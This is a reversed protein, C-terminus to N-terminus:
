EKIDQQRCKEPKNVEEPTDKKRPFCTLDAEAETMM